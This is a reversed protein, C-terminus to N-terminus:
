FYLWHWCLRDEGPRFELTPTPIKIASLVRLVHKLTKNRCPIRSIDIDPALFLRRQRADNPMYALQGPAYEWGRGWNDDTGSKGEPRLNNYEGTMGEAGYGIAWGLWSPYKSKDKMFLSKVDCALWVTIGSYDEYLRDLWDEGMIYDREMTLPNSVNYKPCGSNHYSYKLAFRQEHWLAQQGMFLGTGLINATMDGWSFGWNSSLGDFIEVLTMITIGLPGGYLISNKESMGTMVLAEYGLNAFNYCSNAHGLKDMMLWEGNDNYFHFGGTESGAYWSSYLSSMIGTIILAETGLVIAASKNFSKEEGSDDTLKLNTLSMTPVTASRFFPDIELGPYSNNSTSFQLNASRAPSVFAMALVIYLAIRKLM